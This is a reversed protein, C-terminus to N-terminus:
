SPPVPRKLQLRPRLWRWLRITLLRIIVGLVALLVTRLFDDMTM